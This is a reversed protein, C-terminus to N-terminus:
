TPSSRSQAAQRGRGFEQAIRRNYNKSAANDDDSMAQGGGEETQRQAAGARGASCDAPKARDVNAIMAQM